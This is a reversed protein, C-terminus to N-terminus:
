SGTTFINARIRVPSAKSGLSTIPSALRVMSWIREPPIGSLVPSSSSSISSLIPAEIVVPLESVEPDM